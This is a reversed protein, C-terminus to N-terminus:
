KTDAPEATRRATPKRRPTKRPQRARREAGFGRVLTALSERWTAEEAGVPLIPLVGSRLEANALGECMANFAISAEQISANRLLGADAVRQVREQLRAFAAERAQTLEPGPHLDPAVRQFAIRFLAPHEIVFPRFVSVGVEVLDAAPDNTRPQDDLGAVLLEFARCALADVLLGDRSGFLTYVAQTTTGVERALARVSLAAPGGEAFLREAAARLAERTEETHV